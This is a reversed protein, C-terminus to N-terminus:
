CRRYRRAKERLGGDRTRYRRRFLGFHGVSVHDIAAGDGAMGIAIGAIVGIAVLALVWRCQHAHDAIAVGLDRFVFNSANRSTPIKDDTGRVFTLDEIM